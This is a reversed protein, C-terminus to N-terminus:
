KLIIIPEIIIINTGSLKFMDRAGSFFFLWRSGTRWNKKISLSRSFLLQLPQHPLSLFFKGNPFIKKKKKKNEKGGVVLVEQHISQHSAQHNSALCQEALNIKQKKTKTQPDMRVMFPLIYFCKKTHM